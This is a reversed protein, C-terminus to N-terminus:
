MKKRRFLRFGKKMRSMQCQITQLQIKRLRTKRPQIKRIMQIPNPIARSGPAMQELFYQHNGDYIWGTQMKGIDAGQYPHLWYWKKSISDQYWGTRMSGEIGESYMNLYYWAGNKDLHWGTQMVGDAMLIIGTVM